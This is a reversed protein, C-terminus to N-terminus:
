KKLTTIKNAETGTDQLQTDLEYLGADALEILRNVSVV